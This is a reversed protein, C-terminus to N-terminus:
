AAQYRDRIESYHGCFDMDASGTTGHRNKAVILEIEHPAKMLDRHLLIVVDADQEVGGSARLDSAFEIPRRM